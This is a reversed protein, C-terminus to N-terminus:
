YQEKRGSTPAGLYGSGENQHIRDAVVNDSPQHGELVNVLVGLLMMQYENQTGAQTIADNMRILRNYGTSPSLEVEGRPPVEIELVSYLQHILNSVEDNSRNVTMINHEIDSLPM